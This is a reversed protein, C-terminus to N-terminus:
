RISDITYPKQKSRSLSAFTPHNREPTNHQLLKSHISKEYQEFPTRFTTTMKIPRYLMQINSTALHDKNNYRTSVHLDEPAFLIELNNWLWFFVM